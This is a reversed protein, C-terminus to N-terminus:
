LPFKYNLFESIRNTFDKYELIKSNTKEANKMLNYAEQYKRQAVLLEAQKKIREAEDENNEKQSKKQQNNKQQQLLTQAFALNYRTEDDKPNAKLAMKYADISEQIKKDSLLANGVNHYVAAIKAKETPQLALAIKYQELAEPYKKQKFLANGLNYYAEFSMRNKQLGKRYAVEADIYKESKYLKNGERVDSWEEQALLPKLAIFILLIIVQIRM